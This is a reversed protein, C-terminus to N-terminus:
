DEYSITVKQRTVVAKRAKHKVKRVYDSLMKEKQKLSKESQEKACKIMWLHGSNNTNYVRNSNLSLTEYYRTLFNKLKKPDIELVIENAYSVKGKAVSIVYGKARETNNVFAKIKVGLAIYKTSFDFERGEKTSMVSVIDITDGSQLTRDINKFVNLPLTITDGDILEQTKQVEKTANNETAETVAKQEEQPKSLSIKEKRIPENAYIDVSAYRGIIEPAALPTAKLYVQPLSGQKISHADILEGKKIDKASLYVSVMQVKSAHEQMDSQKSYLLLSLSTTFLVLGILILIVMKMQKNKM